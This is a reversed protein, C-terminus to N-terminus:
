RRLLHNTTLYKVILTDSPMALSKWTRMIRTLVTLSIQHQEKCSTQGMTWPSCMIFMQRLSDGWFHHLLQHHDWAEKRTTLLLALFCRTWSMSQGEMKQKFHSLLFIMMKKSSHITLSIKMSKTKYILHSQQCRCEVRDGAKRCWWLMKNVTTAITIQDRLQLNSTLIVSRWMWHSKRGSGGWALSRSIMPHSKTWIQM